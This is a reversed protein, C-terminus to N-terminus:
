GIAGLIREVIRGAHAHRSTREHLRTLGAEGLALVGQCLALLCLVLGVLGPIQTRGVHHVRLYLGLPLALSATLVFIAFRGTSRVRLWGSLSKTTEGPEVVLAGTVHAQDRRPRTASACRTWDGARRGLHDGRRLCLGSGCALVPDDVQHGGRGELPSQDQQLRRCLLGSVLDRRNELLIGLDLLKIRNVATSATDSLLVGCPGFSEVQQLVLLKVGPIYVLTYTGLWRSSQSRSFQRSAHNTLPSPRLSVQRQLLVKCLVATEFSVFRM